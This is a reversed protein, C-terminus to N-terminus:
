DTMSMAAENEDAEEARLKWEADFAQQAVTANSLIVVVTDAKVPTGPRALIREVRGDTIIPIWRIEEPTLAGLGHVQRVM